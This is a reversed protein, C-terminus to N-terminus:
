KTGCSGLERMCRDLFARYVERNQEYWSVIEKATERALAHEAATISGDALAADLEDADLVLPAGEPPICVDLFMDLFYAGEPDSLDNSRTIDFYSEVLAGREDFMVTLWWHKGEPALQLWRFGRDAIRVAGFAGEHVWLPAEVGRISLLCALGSFLTTTVPMLAVTKDTVRTWEDRRLTKKKLEMTRGKRSSGRSRARIM